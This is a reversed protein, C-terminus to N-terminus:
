RAGYRRTIAAFAKLAPKSSFVGDSTSHRLGSFDFSNPPSDYAAWTYWYIRQLRLRKRAKIYLRYAATLKKAQGAPTVEWGKLNKTKGKASPWTLETLWLPKRRDGYRNMVKRNLGAIKLSNSPRGSFPHVAAVDFLGKVHARYLRALDKWSFNALGAM